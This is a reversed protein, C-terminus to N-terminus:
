RVTGKTNCPFYKWITARSELSICFTVAFHIAQEEEDIDVLSASYLPNKEEVELKILCKFTFMSSHIYIVILKCFQQIKSLEDLDVGEIHFRYLFLNLLVFSISTMM